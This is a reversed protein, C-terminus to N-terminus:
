IFHFALCLFFGLFVAGAVPFLVVATKNVLLARNRGGNKISAKGLFNQKLPVGSNKKGDSYTVNEHLQICRRAGLEEKPTRKVEQSQLFGVLALTIVILFDFIILAVYWLDIIKMYATQPVSQSTQTLLGTLVLLSTLSVMIRDQFDDMDFFFTLYSIVALLLSPIFANGIYYGYQNRFELEIQIVDEENRSVLKATLRTVEYELLKRNGEFSVNEIIYKIHQISNIESYLVSCLQTDFPYRQLNFQCSFSITSRETMVLTNQKGEFLKDQSPTSSKDLSPSGNLQVVLLSNKVNSDAFSQDGSEIYFKPLWPGESLKVRNSFNGPRLNRFTLRVDRWKLTQLVDVQVRFHAIDMERVSIMKQYFFLELPDDRSVPPPIESSYGQPLAIVSCDKEDSLDKCQPKQDCRQEQPICSGDDCTYKSENCATLLLIEQKKQCYDGEITWEQRGIPYGSLTNPDLTAYIGSENTSLSMRWKKGFPRIVTSFHGIFELRGDKRNRVTYLVDFRSWKCLGLLRLTPQQEYRCIPCTTLDCESSAWVNLFPATAVIACNSDEDLQEEKFHGDWSLTENTTIRQWSQSSVNAYLGLWYLAETKGRCENVFKDALDASERHEKENEPVELSGRFTNCWESAELFTMKHPFLVIIHRTQGPVCVTEIPATYRTARGKLDAVPWLSSFQYLPELSEMETQCSAYNSLDQPTLFADYFLFNAIEGKMIQLMSFGGGPTDQDNGIVLHGGGVIKIVQIDDTERNLPAVGNKVEGNVMSYYQRSKLDFALCLSNWELLQVPSEPIDM